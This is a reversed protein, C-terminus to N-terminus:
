GYFAKAESEAEEHSVLNITVVEPDSVRIEPAWEKIRRNFERPSKKQLRKLFLLKDTVQLLGARHLVAVSSHIKHTSRAWDISRVPAAAEIARLVQKRTREVSAALNENLSAALEDYTADSM